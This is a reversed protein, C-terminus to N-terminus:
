AAGGLERLADEFATWQRSPDIEVQGLRLAIRCAGAPLAADCTVTAAPLGVAAALGAADAFDAASVTVAVIAHAGIQAVQETLARTVLEAWDDCEGFIRGLVLTALQAALRDTAALRERWAAEARGIGDALLTVRRKDDAVAEALGARRAEAIAARATVAAREAALREAALTAELAAVRDEWAVLAPDRVAVREAVMNRPLRDVALGALEHKIIGSM